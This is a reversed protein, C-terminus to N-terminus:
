PIPLGSPIQLLIKEQRNIISGDEKIDSLAIKEPLEQHHFIQAYPRIHYILYEMMHLEHPNIYHFSIANDSM